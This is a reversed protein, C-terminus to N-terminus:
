EARLAAVPDIRSARRAPLYGAAAATGILLASVAALTPPDGPKVSFLLAALYRTLAWAGIWGLAIQPHAQSDRQIRRAGTQRANGHNNERTNKSKQQVM